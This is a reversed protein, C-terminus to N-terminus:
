EHITISAIHQQEIEIYYISYENSVGKMKEGVTIKRRKWKVRM